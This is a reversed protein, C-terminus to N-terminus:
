TSSLYLDHARNLKPQEYATVGRYFAYVKERSEPILRNKTKMRKRQTLGPLHGTARQSCAPVHM